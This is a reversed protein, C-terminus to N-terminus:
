ETALNYMTRTEITYEHYETTTRHPLLDISTNKLNWVPLVSVVEVFSILFSYIALKM